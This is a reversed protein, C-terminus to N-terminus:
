WAEQELEGKGKSPIPVANVLKGYLKWRVTQEIISCHALECNDDDIFIELYRNWILSSISASIIDSRGMM